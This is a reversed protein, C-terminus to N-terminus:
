APVNHAVLRELEAPNVPKVIHFDFGAELSRRKDEDQGWGTIAILVMDRGWDHSRIQRAADYGNLKPLGIDLLVVNPLFAEAAKVAELGDHAIQVKNGMIRLMMALSAAGDRNDDVVLIRRPSAESKAPQAPSHASLTAQPAALVMPLRVVFESGRGAGESRAEVNGGHMEVLRKVLTLGIGLGGQSRELTRDVQMFMDFVRPLLESSIGVGNDRVSIVADSGQREASLRIRGGRPTYKACNNLLNAVVQALRVPDAQLYIPEAPMTVSLEHGAQEIHPRANEVAQRFAAALEVREKRLELQGRTVRSIDLLDDILRVMQGVQREMLERTEAHDDSARSLKQIQLANRIPALPNRLEHALMALFEDKRRDDERLQEILRSRECAVAVYHSVTELFELEDEDFRDRTRSGFSITGLLRNGATLPYCAYARIGLSCILGTRPDSSSQVEPVVIARRQLAVTGCVAQGFELRQSSALSDAPIGHSAALQLADGADNVAYSLCTDLNLHRGVRDFLKRLMEDPSDSALLVAASEWLLRLRENQRRLQHEGTRCRDEAQRRDMRERAEALAREVAPLLRTLREKLVYDTAGQKLSEIAVEEGLTGSVFIFPTEPQHTQALHLAALGEFAPVQYDALILDYPRSALRDLFGSRDAVREFDLPLKSKELRARILDADLDSDELHLVAFTERESTM